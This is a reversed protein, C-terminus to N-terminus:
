GYDRRTSNSVQYDKNATRDPIRQESGANKRSQYLCTRDTPTDRRKDGFAGIVPNSPPIPADADRAKEEKQGESVLGRKQSEQQVM